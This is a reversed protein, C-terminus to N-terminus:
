FKLSYYGALLYHSFSAGRDLKHRLELYQVDRPGRVHRLFNLAGEVSQLLKEYGEIPAIRKEKRSELLRNVRRYDTLEEVGRKLDDLFAPSVDPKNGNLVLGTVEKTHEPLYYKEKKSNIRYGEQTIVTHIYDMVEQTLPQNSSFSLDDVFRTYTIEFDRCYNAIKADFPLCLLNSLVPSTPAGTPLHKQWTVLQTLLTALESTFSFPPQKFLELVTAQSSNRFFDEIDLNLLYAKNLHQMANTLINRPPLDAVSMIFGYSCDPLLTLYVCQLFKNLNRQFDKLIDCPDEVLRSGGGKKPISFTNYRRAVPIKTLGQYQNGLMFFLERENTISIFQSAIAEVMQRTVFEKAMFNTKKYHLTYIVAYIGIKSM